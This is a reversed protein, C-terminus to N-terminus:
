QPGSLWLNIRSLKSVIMGRSPIDAPNDSGPCHFWNNPKTLSRNSTVKSERNFGLIWYLAVKSDTFCIPESLTTECELAQQVSTVLKALLLASLLELHPITCKISPSVRTKVAVFKM